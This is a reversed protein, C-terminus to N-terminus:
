FWPTPKWFLWCGFQNLWDKGFFVFMVFNFLVLLLNFNFFFVASGSFSGMNKEFFFVGRSRSLEDQALSRRPVRRGTSQNGVKPFTLM